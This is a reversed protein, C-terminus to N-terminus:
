GMDVVDGCGDMQLDKGRSPHLPPKSCSHHHVGVLCHPLGYVHQELTAADAAERRHLHQALWGKTHWKSRWQNHGNANDHIAVPGCSVESPM